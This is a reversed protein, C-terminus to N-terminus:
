SPLREKLAAILENAQAVTLNRWVKAKRKALIAEQGEIPIRLAMVLERIQRLHEATSYGNGDTPEAFIEQGSPGPPDAVQPETASRNMNGLDREAASEVVHQFEADIIEGGILEGAENAGGEATTASADPMSVMASGAPLADRMEEPTYTGAVIEPAVCRIGDSVVRAWLMQMRGRPTAWNDKLTKGDKGFPFKEQQAEEFTFRFKNSEGDKSILEIEAVESTREVIRHRNGAERFEALMADSRKTLRGQIIHYKKAIEIPTMNECLLALAFVQGQEVSDCGFMRSRALVHGYQMAFALPDAIRAYVSVTGDPM